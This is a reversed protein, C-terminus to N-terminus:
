TTWVLTYICIYGLYTFYLFYLRNWLTSIKLRYLIYKHHMDICMKGNNPCITSFLQSRKWWSPNGHVSAFLRSWQNFMKKQRPKRGSIWVVVVLWLLGALCTQIHVKVQSLPSCELWKILGSVCVRILWSIDWIFKPSFYVKRFFQLSDFTSALFSVVWIFHRFLQTM